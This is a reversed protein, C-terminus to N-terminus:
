RQIDSNHPNASLEKMNYWAEAINTANGTMGYIEHELCVLHTNSFNKILSYIISREEAEIYGPRYPMYQMVGTKENVMKRKGKTNIIQRLKELDDRSRYADEVMKHAKRYYQLYGYTDKKSYIYDSADGDVEKVLNHLASFIETQLDGVRELNSNLTTYPIIQATNEVGLETSLWPTYLLRNM